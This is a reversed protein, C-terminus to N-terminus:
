TRRATTESPGTWGGHVATGTPGAADGLMASRGPRRRREEILLSSSYAAVAAMGGRRLRLPHPLIGPKGARCARSRSRPRAISRTSASASCLPAARHGAGEQDHQWLLHPGRRRRGPAGNRDRPGFRHRLLFRAGALLSLVEPAPNAKVAYFVRTDPLAKAFNTITTASSRSISSSAPATTPSPNRAIAYSDRIRATM